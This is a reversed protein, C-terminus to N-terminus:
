AYYTKTSILKKITDYEKQLESSSVIDGGVYQDAVKLYKKAEEKEDILAYCWALEFEVWGKFVSKELLPKLLNLAKEIDGSKRYCTSLQYAVWDDNPNIFRAKEFYTIADQIKDLRSLTFGVQGNIWIDDRGLEIAKNFYELAKEYESISMLDWGIESYLWIDNRGAKEAEFLYKLAEKSNNARGYLYGLQSNVLFKNYNKDTAVHMLLRQIAEDIRGLHDLCESIEIDLLKNGPDLKEAELFTNLAEEFENSNKFALGKEIIIWSDNRGLEIARNLYLLAEEPNGLRNLCYGIESNLWIDDRGLEKAKNLYELGKELDDLPNDYLWAIETILYTNDPEIKLGKLYYKLAKDYEELEKYALGLKGYIWGDERGMKIAKKLEAIAKKLNGMGGLCCALESHLWIDDRGMKIVNQLHKYAKEFEGIYDYAWALNSENSVIDDEDKALEVAKFYYEFGEAFKNEYFKRTGLESYVWVLFRDANLENPNIELAKEFYKEAEEFQDLYFCSYGIRFNWLSDKEGTDKMKLLVEKAKKYEQINNYARALKGLINYNLEEKHLSTILDIIKQSKNQMHLMDLEKELDSKNAFSQYLEEDDINILREKLNKDSEEDIYHSNTYAYGRDNEIDDKLTLFEYDNPVLELGKDIANFAEDLLNYKYCLRGLQLWGWPYSPDVKTGLRSYELAEDFRRLYVLACSYRYCWIGNKVGEEKVKALTKESLEYYEYSDMNNYVYARWLAVELDNDMEEDTYGNEKQIVELGNLIDELYEIDEFKKAWEKTIISM